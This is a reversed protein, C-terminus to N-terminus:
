SESFVEMGASGDAIQRIQKEFGPPSLTWTIWLPEDSTNVFRHEVNPPIYIVAGVKLDAVENDVFAKGKGGFVSIIEEAESHSHMPIESNPDIEELGM